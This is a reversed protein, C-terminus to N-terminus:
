AIGRPTKFITSDLSSATRAPNQSTHNDSPPSSGGNNRFRQRLIPSHTQNKPNRDSKLKSMPEQWCSISLVLYATPGTLIKLLRTTFLKPAIDTTTSWRVLVM